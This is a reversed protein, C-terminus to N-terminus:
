IGLAKHLKVATEYSTLGTSFINIGKQAASEAVNEDPEVNESLIIVSAETLSTVALINVNSMITIWANGAASRGMVWSLLDGIYVGTIEAEPEPCVIEKFTLTEMLSKVTM